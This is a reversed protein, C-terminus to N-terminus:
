TVEVALYNMMILIALLHDAVADVAQRVDDDEVRVDLGRGGVLHAEVRTLLVVPPALLQAEGYRALLSGLAGAGVAREEAVPHQATVAQVLKQDEGGVVGEVAQPQVWLIVAGGERRHVQPVVHHRQVVVELVLPDEEGLVHPYAPAPDAVEASRGDGARGDDDDGTLEPSLTIRGTTTTSSPPLRWPYAM